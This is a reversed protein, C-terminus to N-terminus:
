FREYTAWAEASALMPAQGLPSENDRNNGDFLSQGHTLHQLMVRRDAIEEM